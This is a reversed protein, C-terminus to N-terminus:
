EESAKKAPDDKPEASFIDTLRQPTLRIRESESARVGAGVFGSRVEIPSFRGIGWALAELGRPGHLITSTGILAALATFGGSLGLRYGPRIARVSNERHHQLTLVVLVVMYTAANMLAFVYFGPSQGPDSVAMVTLLSIASLIAYPTLVRLPLPDVESANKPTVRFDVIRRTVADHFAALSGLLV